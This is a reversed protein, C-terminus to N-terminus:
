LVTVPTSENLVRIVVLTVDDDQSGPKRFEAVADLVSRVIEGASTSVEKRILEGFRKKGFMEGTQNRSEWIGDTGIVVVQGPKLQLRHEAFEMDAVVGLAMGNGQLMDFSDTAPDYVLAPDHGARVWTISKTRSDIESYFLTMFRGSEEVDQTFQRNVDTIIGSLSGGMASRQRLLARATTMLLASPIGHGSVDGVVVGLRDSQLPIFDYYDGGTKDCYSSAGVIDFGSLKPPKQPLLDRQVDEALQLSTVLELRHRLGHIMQNTHGAIVGFEDNTAVPV